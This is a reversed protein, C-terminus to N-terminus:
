KKEVFLYNWISNDRGKRSLNFTKAEIIKFYPKTLDKLEKLSSFYLKGGALTSDKPTTRVKVNPGGLGKDKINFGTSFYKGKPNLM